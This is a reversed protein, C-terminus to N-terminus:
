TSVSKRLLIRLSKRQCRSSNGILRLLHINGPARGPSAGMVQPRVDPLHVKGLHPIHVHQEQHLKRVPIALADAPATRGAAGLLVVALRVGHLVVRSGRRGAPIGVSEALVPVDLAPPVVHVVPHVPAIVVAAAQVDDLIGILEAVAGVPNQHAPRGAAVGAIEGDRSLAIQLPRKVGGFRRATRSGIDRIAPIEVTTARAQVMATVIVVVLIVPREIHVTVTPRVRVEGDATAELLARRFSLFDGYEM